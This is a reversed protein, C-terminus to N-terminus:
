GGRRLRERRRERLRDFRDRQEPTLVARISANASDYRARLVPRVARLVSDAKSREARLIEEIQQRQQPTLDLQRAFSPNRPFIAGGPGGRGPPPRGQEARPERADLLRDAAIGGLAGAVFALLLLGLALLRSRTRGPASYENM